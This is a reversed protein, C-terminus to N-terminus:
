PRAIRYRRTIEDAVREIEHLPPPRWAFDIDDEFPRVYGHGQMQSHFADFRASTGPYMAVYVPKGTAAAECTMNVSDCTVVLADALGLLALYPNASDGDWVFSGPRDLRAQLLAVNDAGTRRSPVVALGCGTKEQLRVLRDALRVIDDGGLRYARNPGGVLVTVIPRPLLRFRPSMVEAEADLKERTLSNLAGFSTVINPGELGDHLPMVIADFRKYAYFPKQVHVLYTGPGGATRSARGVALAPPVSRRGCTILLDPFPPTLEAGHANAMALPAPWMWGPLGRWPPPPVRKVVADVGLAQAMARTQTEMGAHGETFTWATLGALRPGTHDIM